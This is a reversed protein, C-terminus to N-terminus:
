NSIFDPQEKKGSEITIDETLADIVIFLAILEARDKEDIKNEKELADMEKNILEGLDHNKIWQNILDQLIKRKDIKITNKAM